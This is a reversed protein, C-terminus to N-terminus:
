SELRHMEFWDHNRFVSQHAAVWVKQVFLVPYFIDSYIMRILSKLFPFSHNNRSVQELEM